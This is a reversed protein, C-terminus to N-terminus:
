HNFIVIGTEAFNWVGYKYLQPFVILRKINSRGGQKFINNAIWYCHKANLTSYLNIGYVEDPLKSVINRVQECFDKSFVRVSNDENDRSIYITYLSNTSEPLMEKKISYTDALVLNITSTYKDNTREVKINEEQIVKYDDDEGYFYKDFTERIILKFQMAIPVRLISCTKYGLVKACFIYGLYTHNHYLEGKNLTKEKNYKHLLMIIVIMFLLSIAGNGKKMSFYFIWNDFTINENEFIKEMQILIDFIWPSATVLIIIIGQCIQFFWDKIRIIM